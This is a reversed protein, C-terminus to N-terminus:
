SIDNQYLKLHNLKIKDLNKKPVMPLMLLLKTLNEDTFNQNNFQM